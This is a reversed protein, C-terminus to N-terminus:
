NSQLIQLSPSFFVVTSKRLLPVFQYNHFQRALIFYLSKILVNEVKLTQILGECLQDLNCPGDLFPSGGVSVSAALLEM